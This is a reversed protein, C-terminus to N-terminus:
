VEMSSAHRVCFLALPCLVDVNEERRVEGVFALFTLYICLALPYLLGRVRVPDLCSSTSLSPYCVAAPWAVFSTSLSPSCVCLTSVM